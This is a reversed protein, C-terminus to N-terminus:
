VIEESGLHRRRRRQLVEFIIEQGPELLVRREAPLDQDRGGAVAMAGGVGREPAVDLGGDYLPPERGQGDGQLGIRALHRRLRRQRAAIARPSCTAQSKLRLTMSTAKM